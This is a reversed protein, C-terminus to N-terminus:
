GLGQLLRIVLLHLPYFTYGWRGVPPVRWADQRLLWVGAPVALAAVTLIMLTIPALLHERLWGNTLNGAVALLVPLSWCLGGRHRALLLAGPLLVGPLGYMLKASFVTALLAAGIGGVRALPQSHHVGWAVLLGLGLTPIVNFTHSGTDLWRYPAESLVAFVLMWGLYRANATTFLEGARSRGVNVAIALCFLPFALRGLVFLGEASPWLYRLHDAVMTAIATWKLLDLGSSRM